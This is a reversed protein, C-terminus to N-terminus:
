NAQSKVINLLWAIAQIFDFFYQSFQNTPQISSKRRKLPIEAMERSPLLLYDIESNWTALGPISGRVEREM